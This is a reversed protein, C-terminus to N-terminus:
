KDRNKKYEDQLRKLAEAAQREQEKEEDESIENYEIRPQLKKGNLSAQVELEKYSEDGIVKLMICLNRLTLEGFQELSLSYRKSLADYYVGYCPEKTKGGSNMIASIEKQRKKNIILPMSKIVISRFTEGLTKGLEEHDGKSNNLMTEFELLSHNFLAKNKILEWMVFILERPDEEIKEYAKPLSGYLESLRTEVNLTIFGFEVFLGDIYIVSKPPLFQQVTYGM